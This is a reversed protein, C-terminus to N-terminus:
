DAPEITAWMAGKCDPIEPDPGYAHIQDRKLEAHEHTTTLVICRGTLHVEQAMKFGMPKPHGFLEQLMAIVYGFTHDDDDWLVVHYRPIKKTNSKKRPKRKPRVIVSDVGGSSSSFEESM